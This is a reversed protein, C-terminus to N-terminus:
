PEGGLNIERHNEGSGAPEACLLGRPKAGEAGQSAGPADEAIRGPDYLPGAEKGARMDDLSDGVMWLRGCGGFQAIGQQLLGPRPKRCPCREEPTHPCYYIEDIRGKEERITELFFRHIHLLDPEPLIGKGVAAQNTVICIRNDPRNLRWSGEMAGPLWEIQATSLVYGDDVNRNIVGDRDLFILKKM